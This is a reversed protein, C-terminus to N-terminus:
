SGVEMTKVAVYLSNCGPEEWTGIQKLFRLAWGMMIGMLSTTPLTVGALQTSGTARRTSVEQGM